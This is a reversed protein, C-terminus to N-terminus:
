LVIKNTEFGQLLLSGAVRFAEDWRMWLSVQFLHLYRLIDDFLHGRGINTGTGPLLASLLCGQVIKLSISFSWVTHCLVVHTCCRLDGPLVAESACCLTWALFVQYGADGSLELSVLEPEASSFHLRVAPQGTEATHLVQSEWNGGKEWVESKWTNEGSGQLRWSKWADVHMNEGLRRECVGWFYSGSCLSRCAVPQFGSIYIPIREQPEQRGRGSSKLIISNNIKIKEM